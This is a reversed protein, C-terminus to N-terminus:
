ATPQEPRASLKKRLIDRMKARDVGGHKRGTAQHRRSVKAHQENAARGHHVLPRRLPRDIGRHAMAARSAAAVVARADADGSCSCETCVGLYLLHDDVDIPLVSDSCNPDEATASDACDTWTTNGDNDYWLEHPTHLFGFAEPPVHPVPDRKHTVRFQKGYNLVSSAWAAFAPDGLRPEGFNYLTVQSAPVGLINIIDLAALLSVAAGLSHGTVFIPASPNSQLLGSVASLIQSSYSQWEELFGHHVECGSCKTNPYPVKGFTLDQIWNEFNHTGRFGVVIQGYTDWM